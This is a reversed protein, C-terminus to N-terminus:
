TIAKITQELYLRDGIAILSGTACSRVTADPDKLMEVLLPIAETSCLEGLAWAITNRVETPLGEQKALKVIDSSAKKDGIDGLAEVAAQRVDNSPHALLQILPDVAALLRRSGAEYIVAELTDNGVDALRSVIEQETTQQLEERLNKM